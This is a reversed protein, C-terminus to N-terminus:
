QRVGRSDLMAELEAIRARLRDRNALEDQHRADLRNYAEVHAEKERRAEDHIIRNIRKQETLEREFRNRDEMLAKVGEVDRIVDMRGEATTVTEVVIRRTPTESM